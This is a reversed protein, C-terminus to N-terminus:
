EKVEFEADIVDDDTTAGTPQGGAAEDPAGATAPGQSAAQEYIVKGLSQSATMVNEIAKNIAAADDGKMVDKLNAVANEVKSREEAPVKDGHEKLTKETQYVTSDAQNKADILAKRKKDEDAHAEAEKKM